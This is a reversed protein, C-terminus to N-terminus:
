FVGSFSPDNGKNLLHPFQPLSFKLCEGLTVCSMLFHCPLYKLVARLSMSMEMVRSSLKIPAVASYPINEKPYQCTTFFFITRASIKFM